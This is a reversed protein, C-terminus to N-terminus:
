VSLISEQEQYASEQADSSFASGLALEEAEGEREEEEQAGLM